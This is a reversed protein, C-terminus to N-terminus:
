SEHKLIYYVLFCLWILVDLAIIHDAAITIM